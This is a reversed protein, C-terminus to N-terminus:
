VFGLFRGCLLAALWLGLSTAAFFQYRRPRPKGAPLRSEFFAFGGFNAVALAILALKTLFLPSAAYDTARVSFLLAGSVAATSFAGIAVPRLAQVFVAEPLGGLLGALRAHMLAVSSVLTGIALVHTASVLPYAVFSVKLLRVLPWQEIAALLPEV